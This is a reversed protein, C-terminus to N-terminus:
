RTRLGRHLVVPQSDLTTKKMSKLQCGFHYAKGKVVRSELAKNQYRTKNADHGDGHEEPPVHASEEFEEDM